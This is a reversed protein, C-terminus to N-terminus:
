RKRFTCLAADIPEANKLADARTRGTASGILIVLWGDVHYRYAIKTEFRDPAHEILKWTRAGNIGNINIAQPEHPTDYKVPDGPGSKFKPSEALMRALPASGGPKDTRLKSKNVMLQSGGQGTLMCISTEDPGGVNKEKEAFTMGKPLRIGFNWMGVENDLDAIPFSGIPKTAVVAESVRTYLFWGIGGGGASVLCCAVVGCGIAGLLVPSIRRKPQGDTDNTRNPKHAM